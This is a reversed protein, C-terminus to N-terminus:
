TELSSQLSSPSLTGRRWGRNLGREAAGGHHHTERRGPPHHAEPGDAPRPHLCHRRTNCAHDWHDSSVSTRNFTIFFHGILQLLVEDKHPVFICLATCFYIYFVFLLPLLFVIFRCYYWSSSRCAATLVAGNKLFLSTM